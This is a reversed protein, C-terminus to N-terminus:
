VTIDVTTDVTIYQYNGIIRMLIYLYVTIYQYNGIIRM